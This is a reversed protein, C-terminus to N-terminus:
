FGTAPHLRVLCEPYGWGRHCAHVAVPQVEFAALDSAARNAAALTPRCGRYTLAPGSFLCFVVNGEKAAQVLPKRDERPGCYVTRM